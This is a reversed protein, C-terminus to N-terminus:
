DASVYKVWQGAELPQGPALGNLVRFRAERWSEFPMRAAFDHVTQGPRVEVTRLRYPRISGAEAEDLLRYSFTTRRFELNYAPTANPPTVFIFRAVREARWRAAVIRVDMPGQDTNVRAAATAGELGNIDIREVEGLPLSGGWVRGVYAAMDVGPPREGLDFRIQAGDPGLAMVSEASNIIVFGPPARFAFGLSPHLFARDRVIGNDPDGGYWLGDIRRMFDVVGVRPEPVPPVEQRALATAQEVREGTRPHTSLIGLQGAPSDRGSMAALLARDAEMRALFSGMAGATWGARNLYRVGIRDAEFEQERSHSQLVALAGSELIRNLAQSNVASGVVALGIEALLRDTMRQEGHGAAVHAIEHALTGALEAENGALAVLGRTVYVYGGPLAFANVIDSNLVTFTFRRGAMGAHDVIWNGMGSIYDRLAPDPYEGGFERLVNPHERAGIAAADLLQAGAPAAPLLLAVLLPLWAWHRGTM